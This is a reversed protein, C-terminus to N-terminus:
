CRVVGSGVLLGCGPLLRSWFLRGGLLRGTRLRRARLMLPRLVPRRLPYSRLLRRLLPKRHPSRLLRCRLLCSVLLGSRPLAALLESTLVARTLRLRTQLRSLRHPSRLLRAWLQTSLLGPRLLAPRRVTTLLQTLQGGSLRLLRPGVLLLLLRPLLAPLRLAPLRLALVPLIRLLRPLSGRESSLRRLLSPLLCRTCPLVRTLLWKVRPLVRTLPWQVLPLRRVCRLGALSGM